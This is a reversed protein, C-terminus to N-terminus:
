QMQLVAPSRLILSITSTGFQITDMCMGRLMNPQACKNFGYRLAAPDEDDNEDFDLVKLRNSIACTQRGLWPKREM